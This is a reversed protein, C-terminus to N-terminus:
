KIEEMLKKTANVPALGHNDFFRTQLGHIYMDWNDGIKVLQSNSQPRGRGYAAFSKWGQSIALTGIEEAIKGTSGSNVVVNIQLLVAM